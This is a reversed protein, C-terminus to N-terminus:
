KPFTKKPEHKWIIIDKMVAKLKIYIYIYVKFGTAVFKLSQTFAQYSSLFKCFINFKIGHPFNFVIAKLM